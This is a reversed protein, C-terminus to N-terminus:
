SVQRGGAAAQKPVTAVEDWIRHGHTERLGISGVVFTLAAIAMPYYLGSYINHTLAITAVGVLPVLGGFIGNGIHYPL